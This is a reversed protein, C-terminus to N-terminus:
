VIALRIYVTFNGEQPYDFTVYGYGLSRGTTLDRCVRVSSVHSKRSFSDFLESDTVSTELGGVYLSTRGEEAM